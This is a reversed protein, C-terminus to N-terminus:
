ARQEEVPVDMPRAAKRKDKHFVYQMFQDLALLLAMWAIAILVLPPLEWSSIIGAGSPVASKNETTCVFDGASMGTYHMACVAAAMVISAILTGAFGRVNFALWLAATAAIFAIAVSAAVLPLSWALYGNFRMGYMGLYHMFCVGLGLSFGAAVLRLPNRPNRAVYVLAITSAIVAAILSILTEAISYGYGVPLRLAMMGIFHMSWVGIGGLATGAAITNPLSLRGSSRLMHPAASLAILAGVVSVVFSLAVMTPSYTTVLIEM